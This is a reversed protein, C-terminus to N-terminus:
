SPVQMCWYLSTCATSHPQLVGHHCSHEQLRTMSVENDRRLRAMERHVEELAAKAELTQQSETELVQFLDCQSLSDISMVM